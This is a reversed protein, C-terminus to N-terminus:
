SPKPVPIIKPFLSTHTPLIQLSVSLIASEQMFNEWGQKTNLEDKSYFHPEKGPQQESIANLPTIVVLSKFCSLGM